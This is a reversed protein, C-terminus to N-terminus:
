KTSTSMAEVLSVWIVRVSGTKLTVAENRVSERVRVMTKLISNQTRVVLMVVTVCNCATCIRLGYHTPQIVPSTRVFVRTARSTAGIREPSTAIVVWTGATYIAPGYLVAALCMIRAMATTSGKTGLVCVNQWLLFYAHM